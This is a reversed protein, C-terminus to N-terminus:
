KKNELVMLGLKAIFNKANNYIIEVREKEYSKVASYRAIRSEKRAEEFYSVYEEEFIKYSQDLLELDERELEDTVVFLNGLAVQTSFHDDTEYGKTLILSKALYLMSYYSVTIVWYNLFLEDPLNVSDRLKKDRAAKLLFSAIMFSKEGKKQYLGIKFGASSEKIFFKDKERKSLLEEFKEKYWDKDFSM